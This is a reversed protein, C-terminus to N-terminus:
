NAKQHTPSSPHKSHETHGQTERPAEEPIEFQVLPSEIKYLVTTADGLGRASQYDPTQIDTTIQTVVYDQTAVFKYDTAFTYSYDGAIYARNNIALINNPQLITEDEGGWYEAGIIDSYTIWFPFEFKMPLNAAYATASTSALKIEGWGGMTGLDYTVQGHQNVGYAKATTSDLIANTTLPTPFSTPNSVAYDNKNYSTQQFLSTSQGFSVKEVLGYPTNRMYGGGNLQEWTFGLRSFLNYKFTEPTAEVPINFESQCNMVASIGVGSQAYNIRIPADVYPEVFCTTAAHHNNSFVVQRTAGSDNFIVVQTNAGPTPAVAAADEGIFQSWSLNTFGFRGRNGDWVLAADPAGVSVVNVLNNLSPLTAWTQPIENKRVMGNVLTVCPNLRQQFSMDILCYNNAFICPEYPAGTVDLQLIKRRMVLGIYIVENVADVVPIAMIDLEKAVETSTMIREYGGAGNFVITVDKSPGGGEAATFGATAAGELSWNANSALDWRDQNFFADMYGYIGAVGNAAAAHAAHDYPPPRLPTVEIDVPTANNSSFAPRYKFADNIRGFPVSVQFFEKKDKLGDTTSPPPQGRNIAFDDNYYYKQSHLYETLKMLNHQNYELNTAVTYGANWEPHPLPGAGDNNEEFLNYIDNEHALAINPGIVQPLKSGLEGAIGPARLLKTGYVWLGINGVALNQSAYFANLMSNYQGGTGLTNAGGMRGTGESDATWNACRLQVLGDIHSTSAEETATTLIGAAANCSQYMASNPATYSRPVDRTTMDQTPALTALPTDGAPNATVPLIPTTHVNHLSETVQAAISSPSDFGKKLQIPTQTTYLEYDCDDSYPMLGEKNGDLLYFRMGKVDNNCSSSFIHQNLIPVNAAGLVINGMFTPVNAAFGTGAPDVFLDYGYDDATNDTQTTVITNIVGNTAMPLLLTNHQNHHVYPHTQLFAQNPAFGAGEKENFSNPIEISDSNMGVFQIATSEVSIKDGKKVKIGRPLINTFRGDKKTTAQGRMCSVITTEM